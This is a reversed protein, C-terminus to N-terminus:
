FKIQISVGNFTPRIKFDINSTISKRLDRNYINVAAKAHKNYAATLPISVVIFGVGIGALVWNPDRGAIATGLPWGVMFGGIAGLAYGGDYNSKAIKMEQYAEPNSKTIEVLQRPLLNKGHLRYRTGFSKRIEITDSVQGFATFVTTILIFLLFIKKM